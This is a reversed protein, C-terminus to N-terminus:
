SLLVPLTRFNTDRLGTTVAQKKSLPIALWKHTTYKSSVDKQRGWNKEPARDVCNKFIEFKEPQIEIMKFVKNM